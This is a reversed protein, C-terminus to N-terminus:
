MRDFPPPPGYMTARHEVYGLTVNTEVERLLELSPSIEHIVSTISYTVLFNGNPLEKVDGFAASDNGTSYDPLETSSGGQTTYQFRLVSAGGNTGNNNFIAVRDARM